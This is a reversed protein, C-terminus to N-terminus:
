GQLRAVWVLTNVFITIILSSFLAPFFLYSFQAQRGEIIWSYFIIATCLAVFFVFIQLTLKLIFHRININEKMERSNINVSMQSDGVLFRMLFIIVVVAVSLGALIAVPGGGGVESM